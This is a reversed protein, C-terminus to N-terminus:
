LNMYIDFLDPSKGMFEDHPNETHRFLGGNGLGNSAMEGSAMKLGHAGDVLVRGSM